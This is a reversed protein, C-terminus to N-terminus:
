GLHLCMASLLSLTGIALKIEPSRTTTMQEEVSGATTTATTTVDVIGEVAAIASASVTPGSPLTFAFSGVLELCALRFCTASDVRFVDAQSGSGETASTLAVVLEDDGDNNLDGSVM